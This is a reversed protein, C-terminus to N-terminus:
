QGKGVQCISPILTGLVVDYDGGTSLGNLLKEAEAFNAEAEALIAEKTVFNGNTKLPENNIIGAIYISGIRSYAYGKWFYSWAKLTNKKTDADGLFAVGDVLSLTVNCANNMGYMAAWEHFLPNNGQNSNVNVMKILEKQTSPSAPNKVVSADDHVVQDPMGIQNGYWNAAEEGVIDGMLEHFGVAGTWFRGPVGDTYKLSYFGNVYVAGQALSIIGRETKASEPTPANPNKIDLQDQCASLALLAIVLSFIKIKKM